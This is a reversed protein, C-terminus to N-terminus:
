PKPGKSHSIKNGIIICAASGASALWVLVVVATVDVHLRLAAITVLPPLSLGVMLLMTGVTTFGRSPERKLMTSM